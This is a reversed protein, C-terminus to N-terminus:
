TVLRNSLPAPESRDAMASAVLPSVMLKALSIRPVVVSVRSNGILSLSVMLPGPSFWSVTLPFSTLRTKSMLLSAVTVMSLPPGESVTFLQVNEFLWAAAVEVPSPTPPPPVMLLVVGALSGGGTGTTARDSSGAV